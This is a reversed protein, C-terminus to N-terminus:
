RLGDKRPWLHGSKWGHSVLVAMFPREEVLARKRRVPFSRSQIKECGYIAKWWSASVLTAEEGFLKSM